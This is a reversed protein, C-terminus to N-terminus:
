VDGNEHQKRIESFYLKAEEQTVRFNKFFSSGKYINITTKAEIFIDPIIIMYPNTLGDLTEDNECFVFYHNALGKKGNFRLNWYPTRDKPKHYSSYKVDVTEEYLVFDFTPNNSQASNADIADPFMELFKEEAQSGKKMNSTGYRLKEKRSILGKSSLAIMGMLPSLGALRCSKQFDGTEKYIAVIDSM